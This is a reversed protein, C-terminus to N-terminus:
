FFKPTYGARVKLAIKLPLLEISAIYVPVELCIKMDATFKNAEGPNDPAFPVNKIDVELSYMKYELKGGATKIHYEGIRHLGLMDDLCGYVDGMDVSERWTDDSSIEYGGAYGERLGGYVRDYNQAAVKIVASQLADRVGKAIVQLRMYEMVGTMILVLALVIACALPAALGSKDSLINRLKIM